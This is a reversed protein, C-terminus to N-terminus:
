YCQTVNGTTVCTVTRNQYGESIIQGARNFSEGIRAREAIVNQFCMQREIGTLTRCEAELEAVRQLACGSLLLSLLLLRKM